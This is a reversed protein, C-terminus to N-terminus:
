YMKMMMIKVYVDYRNELNLDTVVLMICTCADSLKVLRNHTSEDCFACYNSVTM